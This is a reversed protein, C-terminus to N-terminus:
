LVNGDGLLDEDSGEAEEHAVNVSASEKAKGRCDKMIHGAKGCKWCLM